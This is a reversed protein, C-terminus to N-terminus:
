VKINKSRGFPLSLGLFPISISTGRRFPPWFPTWESNRSVFFPGPGAPWGTFLGIKKYLDVKAYFLRCDYSPKRPQRIYPYGSNFGAVRQTLFMQSDDGLFGFKARKASSVWVCFLAALVSSATSYHGSIWAFLAPLWCTFRSHLFVPSLQVTANEKSSGCFSSSTEEEVEEKVDFILLRCAFPWDLTAM